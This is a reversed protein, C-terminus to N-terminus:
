ISRLPIGTEFWYRHTFADYPLDSNAPDGAL